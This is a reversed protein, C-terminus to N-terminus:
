YPIDTYIPQHPITYIHAGTNMTLAPTGSVLVDISYQLLVSIIDGTLISSPNLYADM